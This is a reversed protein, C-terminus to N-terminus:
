VPPARLPNPPFLPIPTPIFAASIETYCLPTIISIWPVAVNFFQDGSFQESSTLHRHSTWYPREDIDISRDNHVSFFPNLKFFLAQGLLSTSSLIGPVMYAGLIGAIVLHRVSSNGM